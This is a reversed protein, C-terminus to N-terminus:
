VAKFGIFRVIRDVIEVPYGYKLEGSQNLANSDRYSESHKGWVVSAVESKTSVAGDSILVKSQNNLKWMIMLAATEQANDPYVINEDDDIKFPRNRVALYDAEVLAIMFEIRKDLSNDTINFYDKVFQLTVIM